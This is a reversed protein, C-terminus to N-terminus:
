TDVTDPGHTHTDLCRVIEAVSEEITQSDTQVTIEPHEPPEYPVGGYGIFDPIEGAAVRKYLGKPDRAARAEHSADLYLELFGEGLIQRARARSERFPSIIPVLVFDVDAMREKALEAILRNNETIDEATFGLHRHLTDRVTDGDIIAVTKGRAELAEKLALAITSKGSGSLGTFWIVTAM